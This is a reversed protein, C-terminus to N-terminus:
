TPLNSPASSTSSSIRPLSPTKVISSPFHFITALEETSFTTWIGRFPPHFFARYRYFELAEHHEKQKRKGGFDEWPYDNFKADFMMGNVGIGNYNETSFPKWMNLLTGVMSKGGKPTSFIMRIGVDFALKGVNREIAAMTEKQVETPQPFGTETLTSERISKVIDKAEDKWSRKVGRYREEKAVRIVMQLWIQDGPGASGFVELMQALPDVQEEVKLSPKDLGYDVYTKIPYPDGGKKSKKFEFASMLYKSTDSPDRMRSYDKAEIIEIEPYQAYFFSEVARRQNERTRIYFHITGELSVLELSWWPRTAGWWYRKHWTSEGSSINLSSLVTDMARPSKLIERPLKLELLVNGTTFHFWDRKMFVFRMMAFRGVMIPLWLPSLQLALGWNHMSQLPVTANFILAGGLFLAVVLPGPISFGGTSGTGEMWEHLEHFLPLGGGHGGSSM